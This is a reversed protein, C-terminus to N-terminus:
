SAPSSRRSLHDDFLALTEGDAGASPAIIGHRQLQYATSAVQQCREYDAVDSALDAPPLGVTGLSASTRLDLLDLVDVDVTWLTRM